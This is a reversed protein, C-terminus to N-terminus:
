PCNNEFFEWITKNLNICVSDDLFTVSDHYNFLETSAKTKMWCIEHGCILEPGFSVEWGWDDRGFLNEDIEVISNYWLMIFRGYGLGEFALPEIQTIGCNRIYLNQLKNLGRFSRAKLTQLPNGSLVLTELSHGLGAWLEPGIENISANQMDLRVLSLGKFLNPAYKIPTGNLNLKRLYPIHQFLGQEITVHTYDLDLDFPGTYQIIFSEPTIPGTLPNYSLDLSELSKIDAFARSEISFIKNNEMWLFRLKDSVGSFMARRVSGLNNNAVTLWYLEPLESFAGDSIDTINLNDEISLSKCDKITEFWDATVVQEPKPDLSIKRTPWPIECKIVNEVGVNLLVM